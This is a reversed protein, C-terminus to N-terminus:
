ACMEEPQQELIKDIADRLKLLPERSRVRQDRTMTRLLNIWDLIMPMSYLPVNPLMEQEPRKERPKRPDALLKLADTLSFTADAQLKPAITDRREFVRIYGCVSRYSPGGEHKFSHALLLWQGRPTRNKLETLLEGAEIANLLSRRCLQVVGRDIAFIRALLDSDCLTRFEDRVVAPVPADKSIM